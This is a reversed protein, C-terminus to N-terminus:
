VLQLYSEDLNTFEHLASFTKQNEKRAVFFLYSTSKWYSLNFPRYLIKWVNQCNKINKKIGMNRKPDFSLHLKQFINCLYIILMFSSPFRDVTLISKVKWKRYYNNRKLVLNRIEKKVQNIFTNKKLHIIENSFFRILCIVLWDRIIALFNKQVVHAIICTSLSRERNLRAFAIM